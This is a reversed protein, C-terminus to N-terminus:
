VGFLVHGDTKSPGFITRDFLRIRAPFVPLARWLARVACKAQKALPHKPLQSPVIISLVIKQPRFDGRLQIAANKSPPLLNCHMVKDLAAGLARSPLGWLGGWLGLAFAGSRLVLASLLAM